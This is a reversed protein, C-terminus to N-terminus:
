GPLAASLKATVWGEAYGDLSANRLAEAKVDGKVWAAVGRLQVGAPMLVVDPHARTGDGFRAWLAWGAAVAGTVVALAALGARHSALFAAIRGPTPAAEPM